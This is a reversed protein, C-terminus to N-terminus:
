RGNYCNAGDVTAIGAVHDGIFYPHLHGYAGVVVFHPLADKRRDFTLQIGLRRCRVRGDGGDILTM